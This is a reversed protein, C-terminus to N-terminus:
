PDTELLPLRILPFEASFQPPRHHISGTGLTGCTTSDAWKASSSSFGAVVNMFMATASMLGTFCQLTSASTPLDAAHRAISVHQV